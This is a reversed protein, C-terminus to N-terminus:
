FFRRVKESAHSNESQDAVLCSEVFDVLNNKSSELYRFSQSESNFILVSDDVHTSLSIKQAEGSSKKLRQFLSHLYPQREPSDVLGFAVQTIKSDPFWGNPGIKKDLIDASFEKQIRRIASVDHTFVCL